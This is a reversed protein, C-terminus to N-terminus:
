NMTPTTLICRNSVLKVSLCGCRTADVMSYQVVHLDVVFHDDVAVMYRARLPGGDEVVIRTMIERRRVYFFDVKLGM